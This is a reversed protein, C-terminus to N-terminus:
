GRPKVVWDDGVRVLERDCRALTETDGSGEGPMTSIVIEGDARLAGITQWLQACDSAPALIAAAEAGGNQGLTNIAVLDTSFGTAARDRGFVAGIGNYRGGNALAQGHGPSYAAFVLGTEYDYGRMEGLDFFLEVQPYRRAVADAVQQLEDLANRLAEPGDAFLESARALCESGGALRPLNRLWKAAQESAINEEVWREIDAVAKSQLLSTLAGQQAEDLQAADALSRFIAVHGLDLHIERIGATRLTEVMLSIVEIDGQLSEVGYLEAGIQIPARPGMPSRPRTYLVQGAYCLRNAGSRPFSHSDIRAAQPTIDARIGLSRGSLQDTVRFTSLDVDRGMGILLSDTFEVMPPIIMEYGWRHYLDLLDRRLTEVRKADAPLIEAIGDPLMWREAQTM